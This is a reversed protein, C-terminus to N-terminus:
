FLPYFFSGTEIQYERVTQLEVLIADCKELEGDWEYNSSMQELQKIYSDIPVLLQQEITLGEPTKGKNDNGQGVVNV